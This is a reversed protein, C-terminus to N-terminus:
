VNVCMSGAFVRQYSKWKNLTGQRVRSHLILSSAEQLFLKGNVIKPFLKMM